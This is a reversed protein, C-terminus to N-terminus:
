DLWPKWERGESSNLTYDSVSREYGNCWPASFAPIAANKKFGNHRFLFRLSALMRIQGPLLSSNLSILHIKKVEQKLVPLHQKCTVPRQASMDWEGTTCRCLPFVLWVFSCLSAAPFASPQEPCRDPAPDARSNPIIRQLHPHYSIGGSLSALAESILRNTKYARISSQVEVVTLLAPCRHLWSGWCAPWHGLIVSAWPQPGCQGKESCVPHPPPFHSSEQRLATHSCLLM